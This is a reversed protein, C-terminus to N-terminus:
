MVVDVGICRAVGVLSAVCGSCVLPFVWYVGGFHGFGGGGAGGGGWGRASDCPGAGEYAGVAGVVESEAVGVGV